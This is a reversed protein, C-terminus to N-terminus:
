GALSNKSVTLLLEAVESVLLHNCFHFGATIKKHEHSLYM